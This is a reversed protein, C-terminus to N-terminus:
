DILMCAFLRTLTRRRRHIAYHLLLIGVQQQQQPQLKLETAPRSAVVPPITTTTNVSPTSSPVSTVHSNMCAVRTMGPLATATPSLGLTAVQNVPTISGNNVSSGDPVKNALLSKILSSSPPPGSNGGTVVVVAAAATAGAAAPVVVGTAGTVHVNTEPPGSQGLM